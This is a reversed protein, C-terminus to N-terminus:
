GNWCRTMSPTSQIASRKWFVRMAGSAVAIRPLVARKGTLCIPYRKGEELPLMKEVLLEHEWSDGFDYEYIM